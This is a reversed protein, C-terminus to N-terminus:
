TISTRLTLFDGRRPAEERLRLARQVERVLEARTLERYALVRYVVGSETDDLVNVVNPSQMMGRKAMPMPAPTTAVRSAGAPTAAPRRGGLQRSTAGWKEQHAPPRRWRGSSVSFAGEASGLAQASVEELEGALASVGSLGFVAASARVVHVACWLGSADEAGTAGRM